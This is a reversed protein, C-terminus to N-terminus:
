GRGPTGKPFMFGPNVLNSGGRGQERRRKADERMKDIEAITIEQMFAINFESLLPIIVNSKGDPTKTMMMQDGFIKDWEKIDKDKIEGEVFLNMQPEKLCILLPM